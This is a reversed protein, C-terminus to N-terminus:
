ETYKYGKYHLVLMTIDDSQEEGQSFHDVEEKVSRIFNKLPLVSHNNVITLLRDEGLLKGSTSFAETVGDTYFYLVDEPQLLVEHIQYKTNELIALSLDNPTKLYEFQKKNEISPSDSRHYTYLLPSNHGANVFLFKGNTLDIYGLLCTVFMLAENNECLLNNVIALVEAPSKGTQANNKILTKTIVMFLAAPVGKGSVDAIVVALTNDDLFFYDYFDGGVEKAPQMIAYLDFEQRDPYPPFICPLMSKQIQNAINLETGIREKEASELAMREISTKLEVTMKNFAKGLAGIEDHTKIEIQKDLNGSGLELVDRTFKKLPNNVYHSVFFYAIYLLFLFSFVFIAIFQNNRQEIERYIEKHPIQVSFIWGNSLLRSFSLFEISNLQLNQIKVEDGEFQISEYWHLSSLSSGILSLGDQMTCSIISDEYPCGLLVFSNITPKITSLRELMSELVWDVTSMGVFRDQEDYIAAGVTTMLANTGSDDYYPVTWAVKDQKTREKITTYWMQTHYDYVESEFDPDYRVLGIEPDEFAYFCIYRQQPHIAFPEYWIGGGVAEQFAAFNGVSISVGQRSSHDGYLYFQRGSLALDIANREM